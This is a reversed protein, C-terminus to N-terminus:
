RATRTPTQNPGGKVTDILVEVLADLVAQYDSGLGENVQSVLFMCVAGTSFSRVERQESAFCPSFLALFDGAGQQVVPSGAAFECILELSYLGFKALKVFGPEQARGALVQLQFQKVRAFLAPTQDCKVAIEVLIEASRKLLGWNMARAGSDVMAFVAESIQALTNQSIRAFNADKSLLNKHLVLSAIERLQLRQAEAQPDAGPTGAVLLSCLSQAYDDPRSACQQEVQSVTQNRVADDSSLFNLLQSDM